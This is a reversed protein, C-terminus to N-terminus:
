ARRRRLGLGALGLLLLLGSTPEPIVATVEFYKSSGDATPDSRIYAGAQSYALSTWGVKEDSTSYLEILFTSFTPTTSFGAVGREGSDLETTGLSGETSYLTLYDGTDTRVKAYDYTVPQTKLADGAGESYKIDDGLMWYLYGDVDAQAAVAVVAAALLFMFKLTKM